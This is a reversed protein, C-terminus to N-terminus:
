PTLMCTDERLDCDRRPAFGAPRLFPWRKAAPPRDLRFDELLVRSALRVLPALAAVRAEARGSGRTWAAMLANASAMCYKRRCFKARALSINSFAAFLAGLSIAARTRTCMWRHSCFSDLGARM